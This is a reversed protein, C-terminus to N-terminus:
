SVKYGYFWCFTSNGHITLSARLNIVEVYDNAALYVLINAWDTYYGGNGTTGNVYEARRFSYTIRSGNKYISFGDDFNAGDAVGEYIVLTSFHYYGATPATFRGTSANYSNSVDFEESDFVIVQGAGIAVSSSRGAKFAPQSPMTVHGSSNIVLKNNHDFSM